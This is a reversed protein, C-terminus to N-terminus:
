NNKKGSEQHRGSPVYKALDEASILWQTRTIKRAKAPLVKREIALNIAQRSIGKLRAAEAPTYFKKSTSKKAAM